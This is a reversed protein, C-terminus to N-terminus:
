QNAAPSLDFEEDWIVTGIQSANYFDVGTKNLGNTGWIFDVVISQGQDGDHFGSVLREFAQYLYHDHKVIDEMKSLGEIERSRFGAYGAFLFGLIIFLCRCNSIMKMFHTDFFIEVPGLQEIAEDKWTKSSVNSVSAPCGVSSMKSMGPINLQYSKESKTLRQSFKSKQTRLM